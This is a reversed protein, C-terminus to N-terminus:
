VSKINVDALRIKHSDFNSRLQSKPPRSEKFAMLPSVGESKGTPARSEIQRGEESRDKKRVSAKGRM